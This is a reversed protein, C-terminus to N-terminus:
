TFDYFYGNKRAQGVFKLLRLKIVLLIQIFHISIKIIICVLAQVTAHISIPHFIENFFFTLERRKNKRLPM